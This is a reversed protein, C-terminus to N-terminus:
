KEPIEIKTETNSESLAYDVETEFLEIEETLDDIEQKIDIPDLMGPKNRNLFKETIEEVEKAYEKRDRNGMDGIIRQELRQNMSPLEREIKNNVDRQQSRLSLLLDKKYKIADKQDIASAVTMEVGAITVKTKANSEIIKSKILNRRKILGKASEFARKSYNIFEEDNKYGSPAEFGIKMAIFDKNIARNIRKDLLKLEALARHISMTTNM